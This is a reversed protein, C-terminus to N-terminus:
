GEWAKSAVQVASGVSFSLYSITEQNIHEQIHEDVHSSNSVMLNSNTGSSNDIVLEYDQPRRHNIIKNRLPEVAPRPVHSSPHTHGNDNHQEDPQEFDTDASADLERLPRLYFEGSYAIEIALDSHVSHKSLFNIALGKGTECFRWEADLTIVYTYLRNGDGWECMECFRRSLRDEVTEDAFEEGERTDVEIVGYQTSRSYYYIINHEEHVAYHFLPGYIGSRAFLHAIFKRKGVYRHDLEAPVPGGLQLKTAQFTSIEQTPEVSRDQSGAKASKTGM